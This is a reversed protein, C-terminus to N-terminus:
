APRGRPAGLPSPGGGLLGIATLAKMGVTGPVISRLAVQDLIWGGVIVIASTLAVFGCCARAFRALQRIAPETDSVTATDAPADSTALRARRLRSSPGPQRTDATWISPPPSSVIAYTTM